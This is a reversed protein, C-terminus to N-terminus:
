FDCRRQGLTFLKQGNVAPGEDSAFPDEVSGDNIFYAAFGNTSQTFNATITFGICPANAIDICIDESISTWAYLGRQWTYCNNCEAITENGTATRQFFRWGVKDPSGDFHIALRVSAQDLACVPRSPSYVQVSGPSGLAVSRGGDAISMEMRSLTSTGVSLNETVGKIWITRNNSLSVTHLTGNSSLLALATGDPSSVVKALHNSGLEIVFPLTKARWKEDLYWISADNSTGPNDSPDGLTETVVVSGKTARYLINNTFEATTSADSLHRIGTSTGLGLAENIPDSESTVEETCKRGLLASTCVPRIQRFGVTSQQPRLDLGTIEIGDVSLSAHTFNSRFKDSFDPKNSSKGAYYAYVMNDAINARRQSESDLGNEVLVAVQKHFSEFQGLSTSDGYWFRIELRSTPRLDTSNPMATDKQVLISNFERWDGRDLRWEFTRIKGTSPEGVALMIPVLGNPGTVVGADPTTIAVIRGFDSSATGRLHLGRQKWDSGVLDFVRVSGTDPEGIALIQGNASLVPVM